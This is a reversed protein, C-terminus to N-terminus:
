LLKYCDKNHYDKTYYYNTITGLIIIIKTIIIIRLLEQYCIFLLLGQYLLLKYYDKINYYNTTTGM